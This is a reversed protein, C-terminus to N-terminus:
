QPGGGNAPAGQGGGQKGTSRRGSGSRAQQAASNTNPAALSGNANAAPASHAQQASVPGGDVLKEQGDVVVQQGPKV